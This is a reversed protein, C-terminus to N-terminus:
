LEYTIKNNNNNTERITDLLVMTNYVSYISKEFATYTHGIEHLIGAMLDQPTRNQGKNHLVYCIDVFIFVNYEKPLNHIKANKLDIIVKNRELHEKLSKYSKYVNNYVDNYDMDKDKVDKAKKFVKDLMDKGNFFSSLHKLFNISDGNLVNYQPPYVPLTSLGGGVRNIINIEFGFRKTLIENIEELYKVINKNDLLYKINRVDEQIVFNKIGTLRDEVEKLFTTDTQTHIMEHTLTNGLEINNTAQKLLSM